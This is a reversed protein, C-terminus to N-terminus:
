QGRHVRKTAGCGCRSGAPGDGGYAHSSQDHPPPRLWHAYGGVSCTRAFREEPTDRYLAEDNEYSSRWGHPHANRADAVTDTRPILAVRDLQLRHGGRRSCLCRRGDPENSKEPLTWVAADRAFHRGRKGATSSAVQAVPHVGVSGQDAKYGLAREEGDPCRSRAHASLRGRGCHRFAPSTRTALPATGPTGPQRDSITSGNSLCTGRTLVSQIGDYGKRENAKMAATPPTPQVYAFAFGSAYRGASVAM